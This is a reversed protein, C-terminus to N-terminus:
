PHAINSKLGFSVNKGLHRILSINRGLLGPAIPFCTRVELHKDFTLKAKTCPVYIVTYKFCISTLNRQNKRKSVYEMSKKMSHDFHKQTM